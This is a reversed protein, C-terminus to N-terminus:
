GRPRPALTFDRMVGSEDFYLVYVADPSQFVRTTPWRRGKELVEARRPGAFRQAARRLADEGSPTAVLLTGEAHLGITVQQLTPKLALLRRLRGDHMGFSRTEYGVSGLLFALYGLLGTLALSGAAIALRKVNTQLTAENLPAEGERVLFGL